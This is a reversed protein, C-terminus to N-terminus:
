GINFYKGTYTAGFLSILSDYTSIYNPQLYLDMETYKNAKLHANGIKQFQEFVPKGTRESPQFKEFFGYQHM